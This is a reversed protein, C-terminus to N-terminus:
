CLYLFYYDSHMFSVTLTAKKQQYCYVKKQDRHCLNKYDKLRCVVCLVDGEPCTCIVDRKCTEMRRTTNTISLKHSKDLFGVFDVTERGKFAGDPVTSFVINSWTLM